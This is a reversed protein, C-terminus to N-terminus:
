VSGEGHRLDGVCVHSGGVAGLPGTGDVIEVVHPRRTVGHRVISPLSGVGLRSAQDFSVDALMMCSCVLCWSEM